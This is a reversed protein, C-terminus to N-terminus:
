PTTTVASLAADVAPAAPAVAPVARMALPVAQVGASLVRGKIRDEVADVRDHIKQLFAVAKDDITTPTKAAANQLIPLLKNNVKHLVLVGIGLVLLIGLFFVLMAVKAQTFGKFRVAASDSDLNEDANAAIRKSLPGGHEALWEAERDAIKGVITKPGGDKPVDAAPPPAVPAAEPPKAQQANRIAELQGQIAQLQQRTSEQNKTVENRFPLLYRNVDSGSDDYQVPDSFGDSPMPPTPRRVDQLITESTPQYVMQKPIAVDLMAHIRGAQVCVTTSTDTGWLIGVVRGRDNFVPGGSDGPRAPGSMVFWDDPGGQPNTSNRRYGLFRGHNAALKGDSGFGCSELRNGEKQTANEGFELEAIRVGRPPADLILVACDWYADVSVVRARHTKGTALLVLLSRVGKVVHRATLVVPRGRWQVIVGSGYGGGKGNEMLCKIRVVSERHGVAQEYRWAPTPRSRVDVSVSPAPCTGGPCQAVADFPLMGFMLLCLLLRKM